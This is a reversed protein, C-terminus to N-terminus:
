RIGSDYQLQVPTLRGREVTATVEVGRPFAGASEGVVRYTGPALEAVFHGSADSRTETTKRGEQWITITAAYPRDPCPSDIRQVPCSPGITVTGAIGTQGPPGATATPTPPAPTPDEAPLTPVAGGGGTDTTAAGAVATSAIVTVVVPTVSSNVATPASTSTETYLARRGDGCAALFLATACVVLFAVRM